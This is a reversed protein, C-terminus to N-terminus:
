DEFLDDILAQDVRIVITGNVLATDGQRLLVEAAAKIQHFGFDQIAEVTVWIAVPTGNRDLAEVIAGEPTRSSGGTLFLEDGGETM